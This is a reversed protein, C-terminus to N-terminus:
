ESRDSPALVLTQPCAPRFTKTAPPTADTTLPTFHAQGGLDQCCQGDTQDPISRSSTTCFYGIHHRHHYSPLPIFSIGHSQLQTRCHPRRGPWERYDFLCQSRCRRRILLCCRNIRCSIPSWKNTDGGHREM